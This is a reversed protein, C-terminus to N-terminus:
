PQLYTWISPSASVCSTLLSHHTLVANIGNRPSRVSYALHYVADKPKHLASVLKQAAKLAAIRDKEEHQTKFAELSKTVQHQLEGISDTLTNTTM